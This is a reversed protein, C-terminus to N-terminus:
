LEVQYYLYINKKLFILLNMKMLQAKYIVLLFRYIIFILLLNRVQYYRNSKKKEKSNNNVFNKKSQSLSLNPSNEKNNEKILKQTFENITKNIKIELFSTCYKHQNVQLINTQAM